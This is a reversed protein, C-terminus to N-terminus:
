SSTPCSCASPRPRTARQWCSSSSDPIQPLACSSALGVVATGFLSSLPLRCFPTSPPALALTTAPPTHTSSLLLGRDAPLPGTLSLAPLCLRGFSAINLSIKRLSAPAAIPTPLLPQGGLPGMRRGSPAPAPPRPRSRCTSAHSKGMHHKDCAPCKWLGM